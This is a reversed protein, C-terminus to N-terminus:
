MDHLREIKEELKNDREKLEDIRIFATKMDREVAYTREVIQNHKEVDQKMEQILVELKSIRSSFGFWLSLVAIVISVAPAIFPAWEGM